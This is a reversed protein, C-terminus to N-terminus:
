FGITKKTENRKLGLFFRRLFRLHLFLSYLFSVDRVFFVVSVGFFRLMVSGLGFLSGDGSVSVGRRGNEKTGEDDPGADM